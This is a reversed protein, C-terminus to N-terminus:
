AEIPLSTAQQVTVVLQECSWERSPYAAPVFSRVPPANGFFAAQLAELANSPAKAQAGRAPEDLPPLELWAFQSPEATAFVKLTDQAQEYGDPLFSRLDVRTSAGPDLAESAAYRDPFVQKISWDPQLDLVAINLVRKSTNRIELFTWEGAKLVRDGTTSPFPRPNPLEGPTYDAQVGLLEVEVGHVLPSTRDHNDLQQIAYYRSLHNLRAVVREAARPEDIMISRGLRAIPAAARDCIQYMGDDGIMVVLQAPQSEAALEVWGSAPVARQVAELATNQDIAPPLEPRRLLRVSRILRVSGPNILVAQDGAEISPRENVAAEVEALAATAQVEVVTAVGRRQQLQGPDQTGAPYIAFVAGNGIGHAQGAGLRVRKGGNETAMVNISFHPQVHDSGFVVRSGDGELRPTQQEFQTHIKAMIRNYVQQYTLGPGIQQLSDLLWYTLAGQKDVGNFAYEYAQESAQCAALLVYGNPAPLWGSSHAAPQSRQATLGRWTAILAERPAALSDPPRPTLDIGPAGRAVADMAARTAGGSHCSDIVVTVLLGREVLRQLLFALEVDRLYRGDYGVDMPAFAEDRGLSGKLEPYVTAARGGHGSYYVLVQEGAAARDALSQFATVIGEYTPLCDPAEPAAALGLATATLKTVREAPVGLTLKLFREVCTIDHVCGNLSQYSSGDSLRNAAYRDIGILLAHLHKTESTRAM